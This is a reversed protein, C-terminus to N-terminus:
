DVKSCLLTKQHESPGKLTETDNGKPRESLMVSGPETQKTGERPTNIDM